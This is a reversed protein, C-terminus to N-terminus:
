QIQNRFKVFGYISILVFLLFPLILLQTLNVYSSEFIAALGINLIFLLSFFSFTIIVLKTFFPRVRKTLLVILCLLSIVIFACEFQLSFNSVATIREVEALSVQYVSSDAVDYGMSKLVNPKNIEAAVYIFNVIGLLIFSFYLPYNSKPFLQRSIKCSKM